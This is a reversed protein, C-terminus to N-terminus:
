TERVSKKIEKQLFTLQSNLCNNARKLEEIETKLSENEKLLNQAKENEMLLTQVKEELFRPVDVNCRVPEDEDEQKLTPIEVEWVITELATEDHDQDEMTEEEDEKNHAISKVFHNNHVETEPEPPLGDEQILYLSPVATKKLKVPVYDFLEAKLKDEFDDPKFHLSCIRKNVPSFKGTRNCRRMWEKCIEHDKPFSFFRINQREKIVKKSRSKCIGVACIMGGSRSKPKSQSGLTDFGEFITPIANNLLKVYGTARTRYFWENEFHRSCLCDYKTPEWDDLGMNQVWYSKKVPDTPFRHFTIEPKDRPDKKSSSSNCGFASCKVM